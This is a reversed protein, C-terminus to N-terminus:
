GRTYPDILVDDVSWSGADPTATIRLQVELSGGSAALPLADAVRLPPTLRWSGYDTSAAKSAHTVTGSSKSGAKGNSQWLFEFKLAGKDGQKKAFLRMFPNTDDVCFSPSVISSGPALTASQTHRSGTVFYSENDSMLGNGGLAWAPTGAEFTGGPAPVYSASDGFQALAQTSPQVTCAAASAASPVAAVAVLTAVAVRSKKFPM